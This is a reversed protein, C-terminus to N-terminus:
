EGFRELLRDVDEYGRQRAMARPSMGERNKAAPNTTGPLLMAVVDAFGGDAAAHLALNGKLDRVNPDAGDNLLRQAPAANGALAAWFLVSEGDDNRAHADAGAHLLLDTFFNDAHLAALHLATEGNGARVRVSAGAKVLVAALGRMNKEVARHLPTEGQANRADLDVRRSQVLGEAVLEKGEEIALFLPEHAGQARATAVGFQVILVATMAWLAKRLWSRYTQADIRQRLRIGAFLAGVAPVALGAVALWIAPTMVGSATWTAVQTGKGFLFCLNLAQVLPVPQLGLLMFYVLLIPGAVNAVAESIGAVFGFLVGLPVYRRQALPVSAIGLRDLNLYILMVLALVLMFPEPPMAILLRTGLWSGLTMVIPMFWYRRLLAGLGGGHLVSIVVVALTIPALLAIASKIDLVLTVLPTAVIPFGFGLAGHAFGSVICAAALFLLMWVGLEVSL